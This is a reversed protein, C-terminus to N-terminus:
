IYGDVNKGLYCVCVAPFYFFICVFLSIDGDGLIYVGAYRQTYVYVCLM